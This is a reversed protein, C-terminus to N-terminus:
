KSLEYTRIPTYIRKGGVQESKFLYVRDVKIEHLKVQSADLQKIYNKGNKLIINQGITIHPTYSRKEKMFGITELGSEIEQQLRELKDTDGAVGLFVVRLCDRGPFSGFGSINLSFKPTQKCIVDLVKSIKEVQNSEIEGLFKLTLHFNDVYKWSGSSALSRLKLQINLIEQKLERNFDIGLFARM